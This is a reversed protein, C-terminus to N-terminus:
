LCNLTQSFCHQDAPPNLEPFINIPLECVSGAKIWQHRSWNVFDMLKWLKDGDVDQPM